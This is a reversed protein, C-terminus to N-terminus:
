RSTGEIRARGAEPVDAAFVDVLRAIPTAALETHLRLADAALQARWPLEIAAAGEGLWLSGDFRDAGRPHLVVRVASLTVPEGGLADVQVRCPACRAEVSADAGRAMRWHAGGIELARGDLRPLVLPHTAWRLLTPMSAERQWPGLALPVSWEGPRPSLAHLVAIALAVISSLAALAIWALARVLTRM